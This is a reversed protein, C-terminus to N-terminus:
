NIEIRYANYDLFNMSLTSYTDIFDKTIKLAKIYSFTLVFPSSVEINAQMECLM